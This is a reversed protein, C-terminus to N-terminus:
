PDHQVMALAIQTHFSAIILTILFTGLSSDKPYSFWVLKGERLLGAQEKERTLPSPSTAIRRCLSSPSIPQGPQSSAEVAPVDEWSKPVGASFWLVENSEM